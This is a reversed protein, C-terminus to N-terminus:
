LTALFFDITQELPASLQGTKIGVEISFLKDYCALLSNEGFSEAQKTLKSKQWTLRTLEDIEKDDQSMASPDHSCLGLMMRFQRVIMFFVFEPDESVLVKHFLEIMRKSNHPQLSDLFTFVEKPIDFKKVEPKGFASIQKPTLEKSEWVVITNQEGQKTLYSTLVETEKSAKRKSFFEEVFLQTSDDFLSQGELSQTLQSLTVSAGDFSVPNTFSQRLDIFQKRSLATNTGHIITIINNRHEVTISKWYNRRLLILFARSKWTHKDAVYSAAYSHPKTKAVFGHGTVMGVIEKIMDRTEGHQGVDVHIELDYDPLKGNLQKKLIPVFDRAFDLSELTEAYIKDRLTFINDKHKRKWFYRGGFGKRHVVVATVLNITKPKGEPMGQKEHSDTGIVLSYSAKPDEELFKKIKEIVATQSIIEDASHFRIDDEGM